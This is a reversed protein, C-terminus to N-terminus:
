LLIFMMEEIKRELEERKGFLDLLNVNFKRLFLLYTHYNLDYKSCNGYFYGFSRALTGAAHVLHTVTDMGALKPYLYYRITRIVREPFNWRRALFSGLVEPPIPFLSVCALEYDRKDNIRKFTDSFYQAYFM